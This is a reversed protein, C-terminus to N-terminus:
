DHFSIKVGEAGTSLLKDIFHDIIQQNSTHLVKSASLNLPKDEPPTQPTSVTAAPSTVFSKTAMMTTTKSNVSSSSEVSTRSAATQPETQDRNINNSSIRQPKITDTSNSSTEVINNLHNNMIESTLSDKPINNSSSAGFANEIVRNATEIDLIPPGGTPPPPPPPPIAPVINQTTVTAVSSTGTMPFLFICLSITM